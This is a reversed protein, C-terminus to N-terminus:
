AKVDFKAGAAKPASVEKLGFLQEATINHRQMYGKLKKVEDPTMRYLDKIITKGKKNVLPYTIDGFSQKYGNGSQISNVQM